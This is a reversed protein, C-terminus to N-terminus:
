CQTELLFLFLFLIIAAIVHLVPIKTFIEIVSKIPEGVLLPYTM